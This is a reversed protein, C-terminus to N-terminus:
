YDTTRSDDTLGLSPQWVTSLMRSYLLTPKPTYETEPIPIGNLICVNMPHVSPVNIRLYKYYIHAVTRISVHNSATQIIQPDIFQVGELDPLVFGTSGIEVVCDFLM